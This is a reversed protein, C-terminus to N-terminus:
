FRLPELCSLRSPRHPCGHLYDERGTAGHCRVDYRGRALGRFVDPFRSFEIFRAKRPPIEKALKDLNTIVVAPEQKGGIGCCFANPHAQFFVLIVLLAGAGMAARPFRPLIFWVYTISLALSAGVFPAVWFLLYREHLDPMSKLAYVWAPGIGVALLLIALFRADRAMGHQPRTFLLLLWAGFGPLYSAVFLAAEWATPQKALRAFGFYKPMEGPWNILTNLIIPIAFIGVIVGSLVFPGKEGIKGSGLRLRGTSAAAIVVISFMLPALGFFSAHGHMLFSSGLM